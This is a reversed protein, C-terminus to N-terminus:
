LLSEPGSVALPTLMVLLLIPESTGGYLLLVLISPLNIMLALLVLGGQLDARFGEAPSSLSM